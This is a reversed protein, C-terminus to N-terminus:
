DYKLILELEKAITNDKGCKVNIKRSANKSMQNFMEPNKYLKKIAKAIEMPNNTLFGSEKDVFEPIATNNSTVPVLGSSMAECMSVGQADQRTPCLFVGYEKHINAIEYQSLFQNQIFINKYKKLKSTLTKFYKGEGVMRFELDSFHEWSSLYKIAKIAIDNAYKKSAFPRILLIKKRLEPSKDNYKFLGTDIVNPIIEYNKIKELTDKELVKKMWNSVFIFTVNKEKSKKIFQKFKLMQRTNQVVYKPFEKVNFNFLRRYWGLAEVGHVWVLIPIDFNNRCIVDMMHRDIFHVLLKDYNKESVLKTLIKKNGEIVKVSDFVYRNIQELKNNLVFVTIELNSNYELYGKVRRHIFANRYLNNEKPYMNTILLYKM